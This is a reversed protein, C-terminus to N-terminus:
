EVIAVNVSRKILVLFIPETKFQKNILWQKSCYMFQKIVMTGAEHNKYFQEYLFTYACIIYTLVCGKASNNDNGIKKLTKM